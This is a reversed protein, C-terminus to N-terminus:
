VVEDPTAKPDFADAIEGFILTALPIALGNILAALGGIIM